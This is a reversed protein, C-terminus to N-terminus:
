ADPYANKIEKALYPNWMAGTATMVVDAGAERYEKFDSTVTVGGCSIIGYKLGFEDRLAKLRRTM